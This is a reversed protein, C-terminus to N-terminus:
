DVTRRSGDLVVSEGRGPSTGAPLYVLGGSGEAFPVRHASLTTWTGDLGKFNFSIQSGGMPALVRSGLRHLAHGDDRYIFTNRAATQARPTQAIERMRTYIAGFTYDSIWSPDCYGMMDTARTADFFSGFRADWGTAGIVGRPYPYDADPGGAGGCPAHYRGHAHGLEHVFTVPAELGSFGVGISARSVTDSATEPLNSLGLVCGNGCWAGYTPAPDFIGYYYVDPAVRDDQRLLTVAALLEDWGTGRASVPSPWPFPASRVSLDIRTAPYLASLRDRYRAVQESSTDSIRNSGDGQFRVPVLVVKLTGQDDVAGVTADGTAPFRLKADGVAISLTYSARTTVAEAPIEFDVVGDPAQDSAKAFLTGPATAIVPAAGDGPNWTLQVSISRGVEATSSAAPAVRVLARRGAVIPARRNTAPVEVGDEVLPVRIAQFIGVSSLVVPSAADPPPPSADFAADTAVVVAADPTEAPVPPSDSCGAGFPACIALPLALASVLTPLAFFRAM